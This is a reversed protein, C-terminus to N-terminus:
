NLHFIDIALWGTLADYNSLSRGLGAATQLINKSTPCLPAFGNMGAFVKRLEQSMRAANARWADEDLTKLAGMAYRLAWLDASAALAGGAGQCVQWAAINALGEDAIGRAHMLEHVATFPLAAPSVDPRVLAEGTWPVYMGSIGLLEMWEPFRAAKVAGSAAEGALTLTEQVGPFATPAGSLRDILRGCLADIQADSVATEVPADAWYAPYWLLAYGALLAATLRLLNKTWRRIQGFLLCRILSLAACALLTIAAIEAVPFPLPATLAALMKGAPRLFAARWSAALGPVFRCLAMFTGGALLACLAGPACNKFRM